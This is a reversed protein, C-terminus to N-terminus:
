EYRKRMFWNEGVSIGLTLSLQNESVTNRASIPFSSRRFGLSWYLRTANRIPMSMGATVAWNFGGASGAQLYSDDASLGLMFRIKKWYRRVDYPNPTYCLGVTLRNMDKYSIIDSGSSVASWKKMTWDIGVVLNRSTFSIGAGYSEPIYQSTSPLTKESVAASDANATVKMTNKFKVKQRCGYTIGATLSSHRGFPKRYQLGFDLCPTVHATNEWQATWSDSYEEHAITGMIISGSVGVSLNPVISFALDLHVKHLGGSGSFYTTYKEDDGDAFTSSSIRYGVNSYPKLGFGVSMFDTIRFGLGVRDLNGTGSFVSKGQGAFLSAGGTASIDFVFTKPRLYSLSAPNASNLTNENSLGIGLGAMATSEGHNDMDATGIGFISYPSLSSQAASEGAWCLLVAAAAVFRNMM